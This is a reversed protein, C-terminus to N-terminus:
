HNYINVIRGFLIPRRRKQCVGDHRFAVCFPRRALLATKSFLLAFFAAFVPIRYVSIITKEDVVHQTSLKFLTKLRYNRIFCAIKVGLRRLRRGSMISERDNPAEDIIWELPIAQSKRFRRRPMTKTREFGTHWGLFARLASGHSLTRLMASQRVNGQSLPGNVQEWVILQRRWMRHRAFISSM